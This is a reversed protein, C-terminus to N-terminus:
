TLLWRIATTGQKNTTCIHLNTTHLIDAILRLCHTHDEISGSEGWGIGGLDVYMWAWSAGLINAEVNKGFTLYSSAGMVVYAVSTVSLAGGVALSTTRPSKKALANHM